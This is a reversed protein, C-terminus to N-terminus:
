GVSARQMWCRLRTTRLCEKKSTPRSSSKKPTKVVSRSCRRQSTTPELLSSITDMMGPMSVPGSSRVSVSLGDGLTRGTTSELLALERDIDAEPLKGSEAFRHFAEISVVFGPPVPLGLRTMTVLNAGKNGLQNRDEFGDGFGYIQQHETLSETM